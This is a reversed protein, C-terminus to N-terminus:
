DSVRRNLEFSELFKFVRDDTQKAIQPTQAEPVLAILQYLTDTVWYARTRARINNPLLMEWERGYFGDLTIEKESKLQGKSGSLGNDRGSDLMQKIHDKDSIPQPFKAVTVMFVDSRFESYYVHNTINGSPNEISQDTVTPRSPLLVSFGMATPSFRKWQEVETVLEGSQKTTKSTQAAAPVVAISFFVGILVLPRLPCRM